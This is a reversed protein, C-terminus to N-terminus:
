QEYNYTYSPCQVLYVLGRTKELGIGLNVCEIEVWDGFWLLM